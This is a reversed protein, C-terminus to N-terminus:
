VCRQSIHWHGEEVHHYSNVASERDRADQFASFECFVKSSPVPRMMVPALNGRTEFRETLDSM